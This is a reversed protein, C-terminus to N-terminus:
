HCLNRPNQSTTYAAIEYAMQHTVYVHDRKIWILGPRMTVEEGNQFGVCVGDDVAVITLVRIDVDVLRRQPDSHKM